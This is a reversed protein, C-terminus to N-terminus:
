KEFEENIIPILKRKNIYYIPIYYLLFLFAMLLQGSILYWPWPGLYDLLTPVSPKQMTFFYNGGTLYNIILSFCLYINAAILANKIDVLYVKWKLVVLIYVVLGILGCHILWYRFYIYHPFGEKLDPTIISQLTGALIFFYLIGFFWRSRYYISIPALFPLLNCLHFPLDEKIDFHKNFVKFLMWFLISTALISAYGIALKHQLEPDCRKTYILFVLFILTFALIPIYHAPSFSQFPSIKNIDLEFM